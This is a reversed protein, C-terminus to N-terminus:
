HKHKLLYNKAIEAIDVFPQITAFSANAAMEDKVQYELVSKIICLEKEKEIIEFRVRYLSFGFELYGGEIIEAEKVRKENDVKTFKEKYGGSSATGPVFVLNLVTGVGGDGELLEIKQISSKLEEEVLKALKLTGFLEWAQSAAVNVELEHSLQGSSTM